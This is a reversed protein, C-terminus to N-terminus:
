PINLTFSIRSIEFFTKHRLEEVFSIQVLSASYYTITKGECGLPVSPKIPHLPKDSSAKDSVVMVARLSKPRVLVGCCAFPLGYLTAMQM